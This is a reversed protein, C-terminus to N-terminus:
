SASSGDRQGGRRIREAQRAVVTRLVLAGLVLEPLWRMEVPRGMVPVKDAGMTFWALVALVAYLVLAIRFKRELGSNSGQLSEGRERATNVNTEALERM